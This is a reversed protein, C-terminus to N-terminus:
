LVTTISHNRFTSVVLCSLVTWDCSSTAIRQAAARIIAVDLFPNEAHINRLYQDVLRPAAAEDLPATISPAQSGDAGVSASEIYQQEFLADSVYNPEHHFHDQLMQWRLIADPATCFAPTFLENRASNQGMQDDPEGMLRSIHIISGEPSNSRARPEERERKSERISEDVKASLEELKFLIVQSAPDLRSPVFKDTM